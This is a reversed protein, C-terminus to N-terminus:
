HSDASSIDAELRTMLHSVNEFRAGGLGCLDAETFGSPAVSLSTLTIDDGGGLDGVVLTVDSPSLTATGQHCVIVVVM